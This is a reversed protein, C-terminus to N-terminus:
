AEGAHSEETEPASGRELVLEAIAVLSSTDGGRASALATVAESLLERLKARAAELGYLRAYNTADGPEAAGDARSDLIDDCIQFGRGLLRGYRSIAEIQDADAGGVEAGVAVAAEFLCGTKWAHVQDVVEPTPRKGQALVDLAQGDALGGAGLARGLRGVANLVREPPAGKTSALLGFAGVLLADGALIAIAEGHSRHLAPRGGRLVANDMAPLDDHVLTMKHIMEIACAAPLSMAPSGGAWACGELCLIPRLRKGGLLLADRIAAALPGAVATAHERMAQEVLRRRERLREPFCSERRALRSDLKPDESDM